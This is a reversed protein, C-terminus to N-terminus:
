QYFRGPELESVDGRGRSTGADGVVGEGGRERQLFGIGVGQKLVGLEQDGLLADGIGAGQEFFDGGRGPSRVEAVGNSLRVVQQGGLWELLRLKGGVGGEHGNTAGRDPAM